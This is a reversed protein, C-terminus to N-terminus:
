IRLLLKQTLLHGPAKQLFNNVFTSTLDVNRSLNYNKEVKRQRNRDERMKELVCRYVQSVEPERIGFRKRVEKNDARHFFL